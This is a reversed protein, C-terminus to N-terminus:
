TTGRALQLNQYNPDYPKQYKDMAYLQHVLKRAVAINVVKPPKGKDRLRQAFRVLPENHRKASLAAMYFVQRLRASGMKSIPQSIPTRTGSHRIRPTMGMFAALEKAHAFQHVDPVEAMYTFATIEGVGQSSTLVDFRSQLPLSKKLCARLHKLITRAQKEHHALDARLSRAIATKAESTLYDTKEMQNKTRAGACRIEYLRRTLDRLEAYCAPLPQWPRLKEAMARAFNAISAADAKDTKARRMEAQMFSHVAAPNALVVTAGHEYLHVAIAASYVNTAELCATVSEISQRKLVRMLSAFGKPTNPITLPTRRDGEELLCVDLKAKSVDIGLIPYKIEMM